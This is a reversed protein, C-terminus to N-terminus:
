TGLELPRYQTVFSTASMFECLDDTDPLTASLGVIQCTSSALINVKTLFVELISGRFNDAIMHLEDIVVIGVSDLRGEEILRNIVSNAKEITCVALKVSDDIYNSSGGHLAVIHLNLSKWVKNLAAVKESVVSIYPLVFIALKDMFLISRLM